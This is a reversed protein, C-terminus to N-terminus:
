FDHMFHMLKLQKLIFVNEELKKILMRRYLTLSYHLEFNLNIIRFDFTRIPLIFINFLRLMKCEALCQNKMCCQSIETEYLLMKAVGCKIRDTEGVRLNRMVPIEHAVGSSRSQATYSETIIRFM